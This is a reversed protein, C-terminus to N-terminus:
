MPYFRYIVTHGNKCCHNKRVMLMSHKEMQKHGRKNQQATTQLEGQPLGKCGKNATNRPIKNKTAITFPLESMIQSETQRNNYQIPISTIKACQNQIRLSQQLQKDTEPSKPCLHHPGRYVTMNDAFLSLKIEGKGLQM